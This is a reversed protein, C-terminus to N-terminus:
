IGGELGEFHLELGGDEGDSGDEEGALGDGGRHWGTL